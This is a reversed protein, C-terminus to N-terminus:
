KTEEITKLIKQLFGSIMGHACMRDYLKHEFIHLTQGLDLATAVNLNLRKHKSDWRLTYKGDRYEYDFLLNLRKLDIEIQKFDEQMTALLERQDKTAEEIKSILEKYEGM